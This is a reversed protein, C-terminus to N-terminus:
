TRAPTVPLSFPGDALAQLQEDSMRDLDFIMIGHSGADHALQLETLLQDPTKAAESKGKGVYDSLGFTVRSYEQVTPQWTALVPKLAQLQEVYARPVIFDVYGGQLWAAWDQFNEQAAQEQDSTITVSVAVNPYKSKVRQYVDKILANIGQERFKDWQTRWMQYTDLSWDRQSNPILPHEGQDVMLTWGKFYGGRSTMGTIAQIDPLKISRSPGDVFIIGSGDRVFQALQAATAPSILYVNPMVLVSGAALDPVDSESVQVPAWGLYTLWELTSDFSDYGYEKANTESRLLYIKQGTHLLRQLSRRMIESGVATTRRNAVWNLLVVEGKGYTNLAVAPLGNAFTALIQASTPESLPNSEFLGYAPLDAYRLQNLDLGYEKTFAGLSYTDFGWESGPYRTYDFHLGDIGYREVIELMLDSIFQRADPRAFNLWPFTDGDPGVLAWDPHRALIASGGAAGIPGTAFWAHVQIHRQHAEPVLYALPDFGPKVKGSIPALNSQYMTQGDFFVNVFIANFHGAEARRLVEDIQAATTISKAQVWIGRLETGNIPIASNARIPSCPETCNPIINMGQPPIAPTIAQCASLSLWIILIIGMRLLRLRHRLDVRQLGKPVRVQEGVFAM